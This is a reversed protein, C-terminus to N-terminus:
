LVRTELKYIINEKFKSGLAQNNSNEYNHVFNNGEKTSNLMRRKFASRINIRNKEEEKDNLENSRSITGQLTKILVLLNTRLNENIIYDKSIYYYKISNKLIIFVQIIRRLNYFYEGINLVENNKLSFQLKRVKILLKDDKNLAYDYKSKDKPLIDSNSKKVYKNKNPNTNKKIKSKQENVMKLYYKKLYHNKNVTRDTLEILSYMNEINYKSNNNYLLLFNIPKYSNKEINIIVNFHIQLLQYLQNYLDKFKNFTTNGLGLANSNSFSEPIEKINKKLNNFLPIWKEKNQNNLLIKCVDEVYDESFAKKYLNFFLNEKEGNKNENNYQITTLLKTFDDMFNSLALNSNTIIKKKTEVKEM